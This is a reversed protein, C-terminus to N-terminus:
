KYGVCVYHLSFNSIFCQSRSTEEKDGQVMCEVGVKDELPRGQHVVDELEEMMTTLQEHIEYVFHYEEEELDEMEKYLIQDIEEQHVEPNYEIQEVAAVEEEM